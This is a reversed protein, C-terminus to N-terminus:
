QNAWTMLGFLLVGLGLGILERPKAHREGFFFMGALLTFTMIAVRRLMSAFSLPAFTLAHFYLLVALSGIAGQFLGLWIDKRDILVSQSKTKALVYDAISAGLYGIISLRIATYDASLMGKSAMNHVWNVAVNLAIMKSWTWSGKGAYMMISVFFIVLSLLNILGQRSSPDFYVWEGFFLFAGLLIIIQGATYTFVATGSLSHRMASLYAGLGISSIIGLAFAIGDQWHYSLPHPSALFIPLLTLVGGFDKWFGLQFVGHRHVQSKRIFQSFGSLLGSLLILIQWPVIQFLYM